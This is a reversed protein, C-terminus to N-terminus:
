VVQRGARLSRVDLHGPDLRHRTKDWIFPEVIVRWAAHAFALTLLSWYIPGMVMDGASYPVGSRRAGIQGSLWAAATGLIMVSVAFAPPMPSLGALASIMVTAVLWSVAFAHVAASALTGGITLTLAVLGALGLGDFSRTHVGWTQMFGKLWRTRQPLWVELTDPPAEHTPRTMVGLRWGKRWLRFGLDADETVNFSDWGGITKLVDTRFHNSTGGLPFPMGLRALGPLTVDFLSAYEVAFQRHLFGSRVGAADQCHIRLPAQLCALRRDPDTLFRSAAEKLQAPDPLDEADYVTLLDGNALRLGHNLARPKTLPQGPPVVVVCLWGPRGAAEAAALTATDHAEILLMGQLRDVPYDIAALRRVLQPVIEAEDHLAALITYRPLAIDPDVFVGTVQRSSIVLVIRFVAFALFALQALVMILSRTTDAHLWLGAGASGFLILIILRQLFSFSRMRASLELPLAEERNTNLPYKKM